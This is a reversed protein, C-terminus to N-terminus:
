TSSVFILAKLFSHENTRLNSVGPFYCEDQQLTFYKLIVLIEIKLKLRKESITLGVFQLLKCLIADNRHNPPKYSVCLIFGFNLIQGM